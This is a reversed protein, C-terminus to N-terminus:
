AHPLLSDRLSQLRTRLSGDFIRDGIRTVVGGILSADTVKDVVVRKGTMRELQAQLRAYYGDSLPVATTVEARVVGKRVDALERLMRAVYPLTKTRRRDVLLLLAHRTTVTAGIQDCMESIVARKAAHSVLPNELANRLEHSTDWAHAISSLEEVQKELTGQELGLELLAQAYRRAVISVSM